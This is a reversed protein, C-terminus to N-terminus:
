ARAVTSSKCFCVGSNMGGWSYGGFEGSKRETSLLMHSINYSFTYLVRIVSICSDIMMM